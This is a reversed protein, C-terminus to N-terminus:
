CCGTPARPEMKDDSWYNYLYSFHARHSSCHSSYKFVTRLAPILFSVLPERAAPWLFETTIAPDQAAPCFSRLLVPSTSSPKVPSHPWPISLHAPQRRRATTPAPHSAPRFVPVSIAPQVICCAVCCLLPLIVPVFRATLKPQLIALPPSNYHRGTTLFCLLKTKSPGGIKPPQHNYFLDQLELLTCILELELKLYIAPLPVSIGARTFMSFSADRTPM